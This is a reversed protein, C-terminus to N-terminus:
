IAAEYGTIKRKRSSPFERANPQLLPAPLELPAQGARDLLEQQKKLLVANMDRVAVAFNEVVILLCQQPLFVTEM